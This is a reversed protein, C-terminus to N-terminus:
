SDSKKKKRVVSLDMKEAISQLFNLAIQQELPLKPDRVLELFDTDLAAAIEDLRDLRPLGKGRTWEYVARSSCNLKLALEEGTIEKEKMLRKLNAAFNDRVVKFVGDFTPPFLLRVALLTGYNNPISLAM